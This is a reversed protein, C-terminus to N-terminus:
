MTVKKERQCVQVMAFDFCVHRAFGAASTGHKVDKLIRALKYGPEVLYFFTHYTRTSVAIYGEIACPINILHLLIISLRLWCCM